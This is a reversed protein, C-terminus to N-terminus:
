KKPPPPAAKVRKLADRAADRVGVQADGSATELAPIAEKANNGMAGLEQILAVQVEGEKEKQLLDALEKVHNKLQEGQTASITRVLFSRVTKNKEKRFADMLEGFSEAAEGEMKALSLAIQERVEDSKDEKLAKLLAPLAPKGEPGFQAITQVVDRRIAVVEDKELLPILQPIAEKADPGLRGLTYVAAQRLGKDGDKLLPMVAPIANKAEPGMKGLTEVAAVRVKMEPDKIAETLPTLAPRANKGLRGLLVIAGSRVEASKDFKLVDALMPVENQIAKDSLTEIFVRIIQARVQEDEKENQLAKKLAALVDSQEAGYIGLALVAGKRKRVSKDEELMKLWDKKPLGTGKFEDQALALGPM